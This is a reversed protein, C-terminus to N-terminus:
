KRLLLALLTFVGILPLYLYRDNMLSPFPIINMVPLLLIAYWSACFFLKKDRKWLVIFVSLCLTMILVTFGPNRYAFSNRVAYEYNLRLDLPAFLLEFYKIMAASVARFGSRYYVLIGGKDALFATLFVFLPAAAMYPAYILWKRKNFFDWCLDYFFVLLPFIVASPKAFCAAAFPSFQGQKCTLYGM